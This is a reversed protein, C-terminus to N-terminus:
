IDGLSALKQHQLYIVDSLKDTIKNYLCKHCDLISLRSFGHFAVTYSSWAHQGSLGTSM